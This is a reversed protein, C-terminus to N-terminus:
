SSTTTSVCHNFTPWCLECVRVGNEGCKRCGKTSRKRKNRLQEASWSPYENHLRDYCYTCHLSAGLFERVKDHGRPVPANSARAKAAHAIGTTFGEKCFFCEGCGCPIPNQQRMWSPKTSPDTIDDWDMRIGAEMLKMALDIQFDYRGTHADLYKKWDERAVAKATLKVILFMAHIISDFVWFFIRLYYRNSRISITYDATDRDKHDVGNMFNSYEPIIPPSAVDVRQRKSNMYRRVTHEGAPAVLHNHLIAVEKKDQWVTAQVIMQGRSSQLQRTARRSWGRSIPRQAGGSLRHFPYDEAAQSKKATLNITGVILMGFKEYIHKMLAISTYYNDTFLIRGVSRILLGASELLRDVLLLIRKKSSDSDEELQAGTYVKYAYLYGTYACCLAFVKIGHKIPKAPMYQVWSIARGMYKIMSEDICIKEGLNWGAQLTKSTAMLFPLIKQLANWKKHGKVYMDKNDVFHLCQRIQKFADRTMINQVHPTWLGHPPARWFLEAYRIRYAGRLLLVGLWALLYGPTVKKWHKEGQSGKNGCRHRANPHSAECRVFMNKKTPQGDKDKTPIPRVWEERGYIQTCKAITELLKQPFFFLFLSVLGGRAAQQSASSPGYVAGGDRGAYSQSYSPKWIVSDDERWGPPVKRQLENAQEMQNEQKKTLVDEILKISKPKDVFKVFKSDLIIDLQAKADVLSNHAYPLSEKDM